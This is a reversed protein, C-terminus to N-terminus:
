LAQELSVGRMTMVKQRDPFLSVGIRGAGDAVAEYFANRGLPKIGTTSAWKRYSDFVDAARMEHTPTLTCFEPDLLFQLATNNAARWREVLRNHAASLPLGGAKVARAAGTLLWGLFPGVEEQVIREALAPIEKGAPVPNSFEIVRMRRFFADSKDRTPPLRNGSFIHAADCVFPFPRHNPHRGELVDGGTVAKFAGGPIPVHPDLEGVLNLRKGALSALYYESDWRQPSTAGVLDSPVLARLAELLTSKGTSTQGYMLLVIRYRWLHGTLAAGLGAQLLERQEDGSDGTGFANNLLRELLPAPADFEPAVAIQMRQRHQPTLPESLIEGSDSVHWFLGAAAVGPPANAFFTDNELMQMVLSGIQRYDSVRMCRKIGRYSQGIRTAVADVSDSQWLKSEPDCHWCRGMTAVPAIGAKATEGEIFHEAIRYHDVDPDLAAAREARTKVLDHVSSM